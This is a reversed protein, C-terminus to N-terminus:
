IKEKLKKGEEEGGMKVEKKRKRDEKKTKVTRNKRKRERRPVGCGEGMVCVCVGGREEDENDNLMSVAGRWIEWQILLCRLWVSSFSCVLLCVPIELGRLIM